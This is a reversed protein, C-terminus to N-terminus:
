IEGPKAIKRVSVIKVLVIKWFLNEFQVNKTLMELINERVYVKTQKAVLPHFCNEFSM